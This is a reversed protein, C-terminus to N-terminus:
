YIQRFWSDTNLDKFVEMQQGTELVLSYYLRSLPEARWWEDDIRWCDFIEIIRQIRGNKLVTPYGGSDEEITIPEPTNIPRFAEARVKKRTDEVM